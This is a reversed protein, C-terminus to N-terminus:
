RLPDSKCGLLLNQLRFNEKELDTIRQELSEIYDKKRKRTRQARVREKMLKEEKSQRKRVKKAPPDVATDKLDERALENNGFIPLLEPQSIPNPHPLMGIPDASSYGFPIPAYWPNESGEPKGEYEEGGFM